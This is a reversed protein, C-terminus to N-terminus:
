CTRLSRQYRDSLWDFFREVAQEFRGASGAPRLVKSSLMPSLTLAVVGSILVAAALSFAFETFLTGVLGGMFGIPAYVAVLTTTMAIIPVALERAGKIAADFRTEGQEIHRHVNEVVVIADDVVLGIALVMALLTLLNISFGMLLMLFAGGILSLPVAVAPVIAARASGLSLFIVALVILVAEGLTKFVEDISDSIFVSADYPIQAELGAPLQSRIEPM